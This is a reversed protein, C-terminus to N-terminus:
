REWHWSLQLADASYHAPCLNISWFYPNHHVKNLKLELCYKALLYLRFVLYICLCLPHKRTRHQDVGSLCAKLYFKKVINLLKKIRPDLWHVSVHETLWILTPTNSWSCYTHSWLLEAVCMEFQSCPSGM